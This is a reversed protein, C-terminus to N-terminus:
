RGKRLRVNKIWRQAGRMRKYPLPPRWEEPEELFWISIERELKSSNWPYNKVYNENLENVKGSLVENRTSTTVKRVKVSGVAKGLPYKDEDVPEAPTLASLIVIKKKRNILDRVFEGKARGPLFIVPLEGRVIM